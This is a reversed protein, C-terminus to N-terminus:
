ASKDCSIMANRLEYGKVGENWSMDPERDLKVGPLKFLQELFIRTEHLAVQWGPCNHPGDAFSMYRGTDRQRQARDPDLAFPCEGVLEEDVNAARIDIGYLEGAPMPKDGLGEVEANVRRHVMAAVPELRLIELLINIQEKSDGDLFRQRLALDEFLYWATMVIFERTTLMGAAGYTLCEVVIAMNSYGEEIYFSIADNKPAKKRAKIAPLVDWLFFNGTHFAQQFKLIRNAFNGERQAISAYLVRQIRKARGAQDSNTLGLIEGVVEIALQFSVDELKATGARQFEALLEDTVERMITHHQESVAKPSLFKQTKTRKKRHDAGDLFFVPMHEPNEFNLMEAGAGAQLAEPSRLIARAVSPKKVWHAGGDPKTMKAALKASKRRDVNDHMPCGSAVAETM